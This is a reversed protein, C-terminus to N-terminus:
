ENCLLTAVKFINVFDLEYNLLHYYLLTFKPLSESTVALQLTSLNYALFNGSICKVINISPTPTMHEGILLSSFSTPPSVSINLAYRPYPCIHYHRARCPYEISFVVYPIYIDPRTISNYMFRGCQYARGGCFVTQQYELQQM